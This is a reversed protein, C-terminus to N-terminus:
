RGLTFAQLDEIRNVSGYTLPRPRGEAQWREYCVPCDNTSPYAFEWIRASQRPRSGCVTRWFEPHADMISADIWWPPAPSHGERIGVPMNTYLHRPSQGSPLHWRGWIYTPPRLRDFEHLNM